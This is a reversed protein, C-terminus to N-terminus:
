TKLCILLFQMFGNLFFFQKAEQMYSLFSNLINPRHIGLMNESTRVLLPLQIKSYFVNFCTSICSFINNQRWDYSANNWWHQITIKRFISHCLDWFTTIETDWPNKLRFSLVFLGPYLSHNIWFIGPKNTNRGGGNEKAQHHDAIREVGM